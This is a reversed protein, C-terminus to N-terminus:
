GTSAHLVARIADAVADPRDLPVMHAAGDVRRVGGSIPHGVVGNQERSVPISRRLPRGTSGAVLVAAPVEPFPRTRSLSALQDALTPFALYEALVARAVAPSGFIRKRQQPPLPDGAHDTQAWLLLRRVRPGLVGPLSTRAAPRVLRRWGRGLHGPRAPEPESSDVLVVGATAEPRLRGFGQVHLGGSSHGVLVYPPRAGVARATEGIRRVEEYLDPAPADPWAPTPPPSHGTGPRDFLVVDADPLLALVADWDTCLSGMAPSVVVTPARGRAGSRRVHIRQGAATVVGGWPVATV